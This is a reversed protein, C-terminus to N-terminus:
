YSMIKDYVFNAFVEDLEFSHEKFSEAVPRKYFVGGPVMVPSRRSRPGSDGSEVKEHRYSNDGSQWSIARENGNKDYCLQFSHISDDPNYWVYLDLDKDNFWRCFPEGTEQQVNKIEYLM